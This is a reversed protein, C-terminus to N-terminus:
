DQKFYGIIELVLEDERGFFWGHDGEIVKVTLNKIKAMRAVAEFPIFEDYRAFLLKTPVPLAFIKPVQVTSGILGETLAGLPHRITSVIWDIVWQFNLQLGRWSNLNGWLLKFYGFRLIRRQRALDFPEVVPVISTNVLFLKQPRLKYRLIYKLATIGSLSVGILFFNRTHMAKIFRHLEDVYDDHTKPSDVYKSKGRYLDPIVVHFYKGLEKGLPIYSVSTVWLSPVIILEKGKGFERYYVYDTPSLALYAM